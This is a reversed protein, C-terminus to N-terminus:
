MKVLGKTTKKKFCTINLLHKLIFTQMNANLYVNSM